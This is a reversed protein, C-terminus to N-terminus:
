IFQQLRGIMDPKLSYFPIQVAIELFGNDLFTKVTAARQDLSTQDFQLKQDKLIKIYELMSLGGTTETKIPYQVFTCIFLNINRNVGQLLCREKFNRLTANAGTKEVYRKLILNPSLLNNAYKLTEGIDTFYSSPFYAMHISDILKDLEVLCQESIKDNELLYQWYPHVQVIYIGELSAVMHFYRLGQLFQTFVVRFDSVSPPGLAASVGQLKNYCVIPHTHFNIEYPFVQSTTCQEEEQGEGGECAMLVSYKDINVTGDAMVKKRVIGGCEKNKVVVQKMFIKWASPQLMVTSLVLADYEVLKINNAITLLKQEEDTPLVYPRKIDSFARKGAYAEMVLMRGGYNSKEGSGLSAVYKIELGARLYSMVAREYNPNSFLVGLWVTNYGERFYTVIVNYLFYSVRFNKAYISPTKCVSYLELRNEEMNHTFSTSFVLEFSVGNEQLHFVLYYDINDNPVLQAYKTYGYDINFCRKLSENLYAMISVEKSPLLENLGAVKSQDVLSGDQNDLFYINTGSINFKVIYSM